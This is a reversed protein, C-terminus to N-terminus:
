DQKDHRDGSLKSTPILDETTVWENIVCAQIILASALTPMNDHNKIVEKIKDQDIEELELASMGVDLMVDALSGSIDALTRQGDHKNITQLLAKRLKIRNTM